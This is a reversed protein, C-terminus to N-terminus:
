LNLSFAFCCLVQWRGGGVCVCLQLADGRGRGHLGASDAGPRQGPARQNQLLAAHRRPQIEGSLLCLAPAAPQQVVSPPLLIGSTAFSSPPVYSVHNVLLSTLMHQLHSSEAGQRVLSCVTMHVVVECLSIFPLCGRQLWEM